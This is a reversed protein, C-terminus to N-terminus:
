SLFGLSLEGFIILKHTSKQETFFTAVKCSYDGSLHVGPREVRVVQELLEGEEGRGETRNSWGVLRNRLESHGM